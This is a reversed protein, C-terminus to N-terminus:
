KAPLQIANFGALGNGTIGAVSIIVPSSTISFSVTANGNNDTMIEPEWLFASSKSRYVSEKNERDEDGRKTMIEIIGVSNLGTYRQIDSPNTYVNIKAIDTVPISNLVGMDTGIKVGDIVILAGDQYYFSNIGSNSFVIKGGVIQFPKIQSIIDTIKQDARYGYQKQQNSDSQKRNIKVRDNKNQVTFSNGPIQNFRTLCQVFFKRVEPNFVEETIQGKAPYANILEPLAKGKMALITSHWKM